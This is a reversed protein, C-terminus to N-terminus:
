HACPASCAIRQRTPLHFAIRGDKPGRREVLLHKKHFSKDAGGGLRVVRPWGGKCKPREHGVIRAIGRRRTAPLVSGVGVLDTLYLFVPLGLLVEIELAVPTGQCGEPTSPLPEAGGAATADSVALRFEAQPQRPHDLQPSM